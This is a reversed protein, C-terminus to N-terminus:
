LMSAIYFKLIQGRMGKLTPYTMYAREYPRDVHIAEIVYVQDTHDHYVSCVVNQRNWWQVSQEM